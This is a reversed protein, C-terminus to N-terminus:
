SNQHRAGLVFFIIAFITVLMLNVITSAGGIHGSNIDYGINLVFVTNILGAVIAPGRLNNGVWSPILFVVVGMAILMIGFGRGLVPLSDLSMGVVLQNIDGMRNMQLWTELAIIPALGSIILIVGQIRFIMKLIM